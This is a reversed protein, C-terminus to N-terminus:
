QFLSLIGSLDIQQFFTQLQGWLKMVLVPQYFWLFYSLLVILLLIMLPRYRYRVKEEQFIDQVETPEVPVNVHAKRSPRKTKVKIRKPAKVLTAEVDHSMIQSWSAAKESQRDKVAIANAETPIELLKEISIFREIAPSIPIIKTLGALGDRSSPEFASEYIPENSVEDDGKDMDERSKQLWDPIDAKALDDSKELWSPLEASVLQEASLDQQSLTPERESPDEWNLEIGSLDLEDDSADDLASLKALFAVDVEDDTEAGGENAAFAFPDEDNELSPTDSPKAAMLWAPLETNIALEDSGDERNADVFLDVDPDDGAADESLNLSALWSDDDMSESESEGGLLEALLESEGDPEVLWEDEEDFADLDSVISTADPPLYSLADAHLPGSELEAIWEPNGTELLEDIEDVVTMDLEGTGPARLWDPFVEEEVAGATESSDLPAETLWEPMDAVVEESNHDNVPIINELWDDDGGEELATLDLPDVNPDTLWQTFGTPESESLLDEDDDEEEIEVGSQKLWDSFSQGEAMGEGLVVPAEVHSNDLTPLEDSDKLWEPINPSLAEEREVDEVVQDEATLWGTFGTRKKESGDGEDREDEAVENEDEAAADDLGLLEDIEDTNKLWSTFGTGAPEQVEDSLFSLVDGEDAPTDLDVGEESLWDDFSVGEGELTGGDDDAPFDSDEVTDSLWDDFSDIEDESLLEDEEDLSEGNLMDTFGTNESLEALERALDETPDAAVGGAHDLHLDSGELEADITDFTLAEDVESDIDGSETDTEDFTLVEDAESDTDGSEMDATDLARAEEAEFSPVTLWDIGSDEGLPFPDDLELTEVNLLDLGIDPDAVEVSDVFDVEADESLHHPPEDAIDSSLLINSEDDASKSFVDIDPPSDEELWGFEGAEASDEGLVSISEDLSGSEILSESPLQLFTDDVPNASGRDSLDTSLWDEVDSGGFSDSSDPATLWSFDNADSPLVDQNEDNGTPSAIWDTFGTSAEKGAAANDKEEQTLEGTPNLLWTPFKQLLAQNEADTDDLWDPKTSQAPEASQLTLNDLWNTIGFERTQPREGASPADSLWDNTEPEDGSSAGNAEDNEDEHLSAFFSDMALPDIGEATAPEEDLSLWAPMEDLVPESSETVGDQYKQETEEEVEALWDTFGSGDENAGSDLPSGSDPSSSIETADAIPLDQYESDVGEGVEKEDGMLDGFDRLPGSDLFDSSLPQPAPEDAHSDPMLLQDTFSQTTDATNLDQSDAVHAVWDTTKPPAQERVGEDTPKNNPASDLNLMDLWDIGGGFSDDEIPNADEVIIDDSVLLEPLEESDEFGEFWDPISDDEVALSGTGSLEGTAKKVTSPETGDSDILTQEIPVGCNDCFTSTPPNRHYCASCIAHTVGQLRTNCELCFQNDAPNQTQCVHCTIFNM